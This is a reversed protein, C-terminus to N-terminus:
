LSNPLFFISINHSFYVLLNGNDQGSLQGSRYVTISEKKAERMYLDHPVIIEVPRSLNINHPGCEIVPSILTRDSTEPLDRLLQTEDYIVGFFIPQNTGAPIAGSPVVIKVDSDSRAACLEGGTTNFTAEARTIYKAFSTSPRNNLTENNFTSLKQYGENETQSVFFSTWHSIRLYIITSKKTQM